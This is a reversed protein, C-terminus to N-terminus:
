DDAKIRSAELARGRENLEHLLDHGDVIWFKDSEPFVDEPYTNAFDVFEGEWGDPVYRELRPGSQYFGAFRRSDFDIFAIPFLFSVDWWSQANQFRELLALQLFEPSLKHAEPARLFDDATDQDLVVIGARQAAVVNLDPFQHGASVFEDRRKRWDLVLNEPELLLWHVVGRHRAVAVVYQPDLLEPTAAGLIEELKKM